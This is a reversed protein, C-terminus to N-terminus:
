RDPHSNGSEPTSPPASRRPPPQWKGSSGTGDAGPGDILVRCREAFPGLGGKFTHQAAAELIDFQLALPMAAIKAEAEPNGPQGCAIAGIAAIADPTAAALDAVLKAKDDDPGIGVLLKQLAPFRALLPSFEGAPVGSVEIFDGEENLIVRTKPPIVDLIGIGAM